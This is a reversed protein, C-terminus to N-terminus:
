IYGLFSNISQNNTKLALGSPGKEMVVKFHYGGSIPINKVPDTSSTTRTQSVFKISTSQKVIGGIEVTVSTVKIVRLSTVWKQM